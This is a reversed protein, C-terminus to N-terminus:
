PAALSAAKRALAMELDPLARTMAARGAGILAAHGCKMLAHVDLRVVLDADDRQREALANVLIHMAQFGIDVIGGAEDEYPRYAVDVAIVFDAGLAHATAVPIPELLAGDALREGGLMVPGYLVPVATSAQVAAAGSGAMIIRRHGNSLNTAVAGFRRPWSEIPRGAFAQELQKRLRANSMLGNRSPAFRGTEDWGGSLAMREIEGGSMGSAWVSGVLAGASTGSVVQVDIGAADLVEIVGIQALAHMSGSGLALGVVLGPPQRFALREPLGAGAVACSDAAGAFPALALLAATCCLGLCSRSTM